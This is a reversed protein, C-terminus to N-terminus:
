NDIKQGCYHDDKQKDDDDWQECIHVDKQKIMRLDENIIMGKSIIM